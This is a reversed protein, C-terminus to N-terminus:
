EGREILLIRVPLRGRDDRHRRLAPIGDGQDRGPGPDQSRGKRIATYKGQLTLESGKGREEGDDLSIFGRKRRASEGQQNPWAGLTLLFEKKSLGM